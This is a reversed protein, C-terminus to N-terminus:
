SEESQSSVTASTAGASSWGGGLAKYLRILAATGEAQSAKLSDEITLVSRETDLVTQFDTLGTTYRHRALLAANRAAEAANALSAQRRRANALAVLANEVDQMASLVSQDYSIVAQERAANQIEIQRRISARSFIPATLSKLVSVTTTTADFLGSLSDDSLGFSGSLRLSPFRAAKAEGLRAIAAAAQREAARVDPRQRLTDAPIGVAVRVPAQPISAPTALEERLAGPSLGLLLALSHETEAQGTELTPLQARTQELNARSQEVDLASTLGAEARWRTLDLTESQRAVNERATTIRAQYSRVQVYNLAVEAVIAVRTAQLSAASAELDAQAASVAKRAGGFLPPEWSADLGAGFSDRTSTSSDNSTRSTGASTSASLSPLLDLGTLGRRARAASLRSQAARLDLNAKLSREILSTLLPDEFAQWWRSLDGPKDTTAVEAAADARSWAGPTPGPTPVHHTAATSCGTAVAAALVVGAIREPRCRTRVKLAL